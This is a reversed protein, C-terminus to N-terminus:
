PFYEPMLWVSLGHQETSVSFVNLKGDQLGTAVM